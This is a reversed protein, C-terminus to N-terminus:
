ILCNLFLCVNDLKSKEKKNVSRILFRHPLPSSTKVDFFAYRWKEDYGLNVIKQYPYRMAKEHLLLYVSKDTMAISVNKGILYNKENWVPKKEYRFGTRVMECSNKSESICLGSEVYIVTENVWIATKDFIQHEIYTQYLKESSALGRLEGKAYAQNIKQKNYENVIGEMKYLLAQTKQICDDHYSKLIGCPEQCFICKM